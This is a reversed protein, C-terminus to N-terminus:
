PLLTPGPRVPDVALGQRLLALLAAGARDYAARDGTLMLRLGAGRLQTVLLGATADPDTGPRVNGNDLGEAVYGALLARFHEDREVFVERLAPEAAVAEAWMQLFARTMPGLHRLEGLYARVVLLLRDLGRLETEPAPLGAQAYRAARALLEERSGFQHTVIGRSYGAAAGVRALTMSRTGGEAILGLAAELLRRETEARREAQTRREPRPAQDITM